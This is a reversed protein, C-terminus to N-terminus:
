QIISVTKVYVGATGVTHKKQEEWSAVLSKGDCWFDTYVHGEPLEPLVIRGSIGETEHWYIRNSGDFLYTFNDHTYAPLEIIRTVGKKLVDPSVSAYLASGPLSPTSLTIQVVQGSSPDHAKKFLTQVVSPAEAISWLQFGELYEGRTLSEESHDNVYYRTYRFLTQEASTKKWALIWSEKGPLLDVLEWDPNSEAFPLPLEDLPKEQPDVRYVPHVRDPSEHPDFFANRYLHLYMDDDIVFFSGTSRQTCEPFQLMSEPIMGRENKRVPLVGRTNVCLYLTEKQEEFGCCRLALPWPTFSATDSAHFEKQPLLGNEQFIYFGDSLTSEPSTGSVTGRSCGSM